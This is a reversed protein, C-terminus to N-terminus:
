LIVRDDDRGGRSRCRRYENMALIDIYRAEM